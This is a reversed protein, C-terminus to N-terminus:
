FKFYVGNILIADILIITKPQDRKKDHKMCQINSSHNMIVGCWRRELFWPFWNLWHFIIVDREFDRLNRKKLHRPEPISIVVSIAAKSFSSAPAFIVRPGINKARRHRSYVMYGVINRKPGKKTLIFEIQLNQPSFDATQTDNRGSIYRDPCKYGFHRRKCFSARTSGSDDPRCGCCAGFPFWEIELYHGIYRFTHYQILWIARTWLMEHWNEM